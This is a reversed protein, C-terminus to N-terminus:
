WNCTIDIYMSGAMEYTLEVFEDGKLWADKRQTGETKPYDAWEAGREGTFYDRLKMYNSQTVKGTLRADLYYQSQGKIQVQIGAIDPVSLGTVDLMVQQFEKYSDYIVDPDKRCSVALICCAILFFIIFAKRNM